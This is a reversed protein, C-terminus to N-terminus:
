SKFQRRIGDVLALFGFVPLLKVAIWIGAYFPNGASNELIAQGLIEEVSPAGTLLLIVGIIIEGLSMKSM